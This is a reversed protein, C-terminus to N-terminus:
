IEGCDSLELSIQLRADPGQLGAVSVQRGGHAHEGALRAPTNEACQQQYCREHERGSGRNM